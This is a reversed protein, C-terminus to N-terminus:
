TPIRRVRDDRIETISGDWAIQHTVRRYRGFEREKTQINVGLLSNNELRLLELPEDHEGSRIRLVCPYGGVADQEASTICDILARYPAMPDDPYEERRARAWNGAEPPNGVFLPTEHTSGSHDATRVDDNVEPSILAILPPGMRDRGAFVIQCFNDMRYDGRGSSQFVNEFLPRLRDLVSRVNTERTRLVETGNMLAIATGMCAMAGACDGVWALACDTRIPFIKTTSNWRGGGTVLSDSALFLDGDPTSWATVLTM